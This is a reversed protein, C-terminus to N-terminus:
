SAIEFREKWYGARRYARRIRDAGVHAFEAGIADAIWKGCENLFSMASARFGHSSAEGKDFGMHRLAQNM